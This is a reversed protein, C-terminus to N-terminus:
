EVEENSPSEESLKKCSFFLALVTKYDDDWDRERDVYYQKDQIRKIIPRYLKADGPLFIDEVPRNGHYKRFYM